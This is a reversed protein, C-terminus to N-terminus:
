KADPKEEKPLKAELEKIRAKLQNNDRELLELQQAWEGIVASIRLAATTYSTPQQAAAYVVSAFLIVIGIVLVWGRKRPKPSWSPLSEERGLDCWANTM